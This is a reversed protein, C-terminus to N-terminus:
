AIQVKICPVVKREVENVAGLEVNFMKLRINAHVSEAVGGLVGM